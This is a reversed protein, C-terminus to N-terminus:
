VIHFASDVGVPGDLLNLVVQTNALPGRLLLVFPVQPPPLCMSLRLLMCGLQCISWSGSGAQGSVGPAACRGCCCWTYCELFLVLEQGGPSSWIDVLIGSM